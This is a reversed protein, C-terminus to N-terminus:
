EDEKHVDDLIHAGFGAFAFWSCFGCGMMIGAWIRLAEFGYSKSIAYLAPVVVTAALNVILWRKLVKLSKEYFDSGWETM